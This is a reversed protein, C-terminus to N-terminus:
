NLARAYEPCLVEIANQGVVSALIGRGNTVSPRTFDTVESVDWRTSVQVAIDVFDDATPREVKSLAECFDEAANVLESDSISSYDYSPNLTTDSLVGDLFRGEEVTLGLQDTTPTTAASTSSTGSSCASAALGLAVALVIACLFRYRAPYITTPSAMQM